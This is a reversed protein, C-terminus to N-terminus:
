TMTQKDSLRSATLIVWRLFLRPCPIHVFATQSLLEPDQSGEFKSLSSKLFYATWARGLSLIDSYRPTTPPHHNELAEWPSAVQMRPSLQQPRRGKTRTNSAMTQPELPWGQSVWGGPLSPSFTGLPM